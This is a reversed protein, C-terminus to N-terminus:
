VHHVVSAASLTFAVGTETSHKASGALRLSTSLAAADPQAQESKVKAEQGQVGSKGGQRSTSSLINRMSV